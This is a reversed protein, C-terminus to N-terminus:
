RGEFRADPRARNGFCPNEISRIVPDHKVAHDKVRDVFSFVVREIHMERKRQASRLHAPSIEVVVFVRRVIKDPTHERKPDSFTKSRRIKFGFFGLDFCFRSVTLTMKKVGCRDGPGDPDARREIKLSPIGRDKLCCLLVPLGVMVPHFGYIFRVILTKFDTRIQM